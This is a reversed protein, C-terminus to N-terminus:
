LSGLGLLVPPIKLISALLRRRAISDLGTNNNEMLRVTVESVSLRKALDTQTWSKEKGDSSDLYKMKERFYRVITGPDPYGEKDLAFDPLGAQKLLTKILSHSIDSMM